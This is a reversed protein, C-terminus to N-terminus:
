FHLAGNAMWTLWLASYFAGALINRTRDYLVSSLLGVALTVSLASPLASAPLAAFLFVAAFSMMAFYLATGVVVSGASNRLGREGFVTEIFDRLRRQMRLRLFAEFGLAFVFFILFALVFVYSSPWATGQALVSELVAGTLLVPVISLAVFLSRRLGEAEEFQKEDRGRVRRELWALGAGAGALAVAAVAIAAFAGPTAFVGELLGSPGPSALGGLGYVVLAFAAVDAGLFAAALLRTRDGPYNYLKVTLPSRTCWREWALWAVPLTLATIAQTLVLHDRDVFPYIADRPLSVRGKTRMEVFSITEADVATSFLDHGLDPYLALRGGPALVAGTEAQDAPVQTDLGGAVFLTSNPRVSALTLSPSRERLADSDLVSPSLARRGAMDFLAEPREEWLVVLDIPAAWVVTANVQGDPTAAAQLVGTGGLEYGVMALASRDVGELGRLFAIGYRIDEVEAGPAMFSSTGSSMGHGRLDIALAVFGRRAFELTVRHMDEKRDGYGHVVLVGPLLGSEAAPRVVLGSITVGGESPYTVYTLSLDPTVAVDQWLLASFLFVPVLLFVFLTQFLRVRRRRM